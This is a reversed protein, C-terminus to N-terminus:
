IGRGRGEQRGQRRPPENDDSELALVTDNGAGGYLLNQGADGLILEDGSPNDVVSSASEDKLISL